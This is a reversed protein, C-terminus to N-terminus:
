LYSFINEGSFSGKDRVGEHLKLGTDSDETSCLIINQSTKNKKQEYM